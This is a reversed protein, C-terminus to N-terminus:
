RTARSKSCPLRGPTARPMKARLRAVWRSAPPCSAEPSPNCWRRTARGLADDASLEVLGKFGVEQGELAEEVKPFLNGYGGHLYAMPEKSEELVKGQTNAVKYHLTVASDKTIKM